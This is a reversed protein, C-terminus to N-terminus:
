NKRTIKEIEARSQNPLSRNFDCGVEHNATYTRPRDQVPVASLEEMPLTIDSVGCPANYELSLIQACAKTWTRSQFIAGNECKYGGKESVSSNFYTKGNKVCKAWRNSCNMPPWALALSFYPFMNYTTYGDKYSCSKKEQSPAEKFMQFLLYGAELFRRVSNSDFNIAM